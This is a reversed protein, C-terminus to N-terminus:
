TRKLIANYFYFFMYKISNFFSINQHNRYIKWQWIIARAKNSSLSKNQLRYRALCKQICYAQKTKSIIDLWMIYDEHGSKKQYFKGYKESNYIGTLNGIYNSKLLMGYDINEPSRRISVVEKENTFTSFNSCVLDWGESLVKIQSTLKNKHWIDDSDLFAIYKGKCIKIAKNRSEAVGLNNVNSLVTIREDDYSQARSFTDDSSSDDVIYLHWHQFDQQLVSNISEDITASANYAPMIISVVENNM